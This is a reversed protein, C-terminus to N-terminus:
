IFEGQWCRLSYLSFLISFICVSKLTYLTLLFIAQQQADTWNYIVPSTLIRYSCFCTTRSASQLTNCIIKRINKREPPCSHPNLPLSCVALEDHRKVVKSENPWLIKSSSPIPSSVRRFESAVPYTPSIKMRKLWWCSGEFKNPVRTSKFNCSPTFNRFASTWDFSIAESIFGEM